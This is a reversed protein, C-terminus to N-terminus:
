PSDPKSEGFSLPPAENEATLLTPSLSLLVRPSILGAGRQSKLCKGGPTFPWFLETQHRRMWTVRSHSMNPFTFGNPWVTTPTILEEFVNTLSQITCYPSVQLRCLISRFWPYADEWVKENGWHFEWTGQHGPLFPDHIGRWFGKLNLWRHTVPELSM